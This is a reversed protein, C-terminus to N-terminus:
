NKENKYFEIISNLEKEIEAAGEGLLFGIKQVLGLNKEIVDSVRNIVEAKQVEPSSMDRLIAAVVEGKQISFLSINIIKEDLHMDRNDIDEDNSLVFTFLNHIDYPLLKTVDAGQLGPIVENIEEADEGVIRIFTKNTLLVKLNKDAIIIGARLKQLVSKMLGSTSEYTNKEKVFTTETEKLAEKLEEIQKDSKNEKEELEKLSNYIYSICLIPKTLGQAIAIAFERCSKYGCSSCGNKNGSKNLLKLQKNIEEEPPMAVRQDDPAFSTSLDLMLYKQLQQNWEFRFFNKLRKNAYQIVLTERLTKTANKTMGPGSLSSGYTINFHKKIDEIRSEFENIADIMAQKGEISFVEKNLLNESMESAQLLGNNIPFLSGKYGLPPDFESYELTGETINFKEFLERLETFTIAAEINIKEKYRLAENKRAIEPGIYVIRAKEGYIERAVMSTAIMPSVLPALNNALHPKYKEIYSVVVPDTSTIYYRGKFNNLLELYKYAILDVGFSVEQVHDFGLEKVMQVFKRYDTIDNFEAAISPSVVAVVKEKSSLISEVEEVSSRYHIVDEPCQTVCNGCGICRNDKIEPLDNEDLLIANVPCSRVCAFCASCNKKNISVLPEVGEM